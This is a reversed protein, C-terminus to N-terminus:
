KKGGVSKRDAVVEIYGDWTEPFSMENVTWQIQALRKLWQDIISKDVLKVSEIDKVFNTSFQYAFNGPDCAVTPIGAIVSDIALGSSFTVTCYADQLDEAWTTEAGNSFRINTYNQMVVHNLLPDYNTFGRESILPHSRIVITRDSVARIKHICDIAWDNIDIGRLSADSPLQLALLIHGDKNNQWGQWDIGLEQLRQSGKEEQYTPWYTDLNLFGNIGVRYHTNAESTKRGLLATEICIFNTANVAINNRIVHHGKERPKWSGFIVALDCPEYTDSYSYDLHPSTSKIDWRGTRIANTNPDLGYKNELWAQLGKGCHLLIDRESVSNATLM